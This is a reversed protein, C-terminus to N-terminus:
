EGVQVRYVRLEVMVNEDVYADFWESHDYVVVNYRKLTAWCPYKNVDLHHFNLSYIVQGGFDRLFNAMKLGTAKRMM